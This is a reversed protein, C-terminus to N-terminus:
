FLFSLNLKLAFDHKPCLLVAKAKTNVAVTPMRSTVSKTV